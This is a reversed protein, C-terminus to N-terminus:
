ARAERWVIRMLLNKPLMWHHRCKIKRILIEGLKSTSIHGSLLKWCVAPMNQGVMCSVAMGRNRPLTRQFIKLFFYFCHCVMNQVKLSTNDNTFSWSNIKLQQLKKFKAYYLIILVSLLACIIFFFLMLQIKRTTIKMSTNGDSNDQGTHPLPRLAPYYWAGTAFTIYVFDSCLFSTYSLM